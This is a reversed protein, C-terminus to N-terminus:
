NLKKIAQTCMNDVIENGKIGSHAEVYRFRIKTDVKKFEEVLEYLCMWLERYMIPTGNAKRWGLAKWNYMWESVGKIVYQSDCRFTITLKDDANDSIVKAALGFGKILGILEMENNTTMVKTIVVEDIVEGKFVLISAAAGIGPNPRCGGDTFINYYKKKNSM